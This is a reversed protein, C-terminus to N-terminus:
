ELELYQFDYAPILTSMAPTDGGPAASDGLGAPDTLGIALGAIGAAILAAWPGLAQARRQTGANRAIRAMLLDSPVPPARRAADLASLAAADGAIRDMLADPVQPAPLDRLGRLAAVVGAETKDSM